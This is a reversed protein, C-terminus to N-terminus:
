EEQKDENEVAEPVIRGEDMPSDEQKQPWGCEDVDSIEVWGKGSCGHCTKMYPGTASGEVEINIVGSGKCVPCIVAKM